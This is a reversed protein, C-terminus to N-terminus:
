VDMLPRKTKLYSWRRQVLVYGAKCQWVAPQHTQSKTTYPASFSVMHHWKATKLISVAKVVVEHSGGEVEIPTSTTDGVM